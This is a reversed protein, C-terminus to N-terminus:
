PSMFDRLIEETVSVISKLVQSNRGAELRWLIWAPIFEDVLFGVLLAAIIFGFLLSLVQKPSREQKFLRYLILIGMALPAFGLLAAFDM